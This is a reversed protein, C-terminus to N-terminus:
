FRSEETRSIRVRETSLRPPLSLPLSLSSSLLSLPSFLALHSFLVTGAGSPWRPRGILDVAFLPIRLKCLKRLSAYNAYNKCLAHMIKCIAHMIICEPFMAYNKCLKQTIHMIMVYNRCLKQTIQMIHMIEAYNRCLKCLIYMFQAYNRCLKQM